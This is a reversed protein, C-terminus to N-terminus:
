PRRRPPPRSTLVRPLPASGVCFRRIPANKSFPSVPPLPLSYRTRERVGAAGRVKQIKNARSLHEAIQEERKKKTNVTTEIGIKLSKYANDRSGLEAVAQSCFPPM